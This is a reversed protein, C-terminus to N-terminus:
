GSNTSPRVRMELVRKADTTQRRQRVAKARAAVITFGVLLSLLGLNGVLLLVTVITEVNGSATTDTQDVHLYM